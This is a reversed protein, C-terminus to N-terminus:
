KTEELKQQVRTRLYVLGGTIKYLKHQLWGEHDLGLADPALGTRALDIADTLDESVEGLLERLSANDSRLEMKQAELNRLCDEVKHWKFITNAGCISCKDYDNKKCTVTLRGM